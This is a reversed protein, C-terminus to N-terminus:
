AFGSWQSHLYVKSTCFVGASHNFDEPALGTQAQVYAYDDPSLTQQSLVASLDGPLTKPLTHASHELRYTSTLLGIVLLLALLWRTKIQHLDVKM